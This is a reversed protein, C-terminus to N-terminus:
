VHLHITTNECKNIMHIFFVLYRDTAASGKCTKETKLLHGKIMVLKQKKLLYITYNFLLLFFLAAVQIKSDWYRIHRTLEKNQKLSLRIPLIYNKTTM